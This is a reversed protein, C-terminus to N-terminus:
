NTKYKKMFETPSIGHKKKFVRYFNSTSQFGCDYCIDLMSSNTRLLLNSAYNIRIENIYESPSTGLYKKFCRALYERSKGSIKVMHETGQSFNEPHEMEALFHSFWMPLNHGTDKSINCFQKVFIDTLLAKMRLNLAKKDKWNLSNLSGIQAKFLKKDVSNLFIKPPMKCTLLDKSPFSDSLFSFISEATEISFSLNIFKAPTNATDYSYYHIDDPRIFVLCGESLQETVGNIHHTLVGSVTLFVEFFSHCHPYPVSERDSLYQYWCGAIPDINNTTPFRYASDM